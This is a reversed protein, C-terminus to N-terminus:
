FQRFYRESERAPKHPVFYSKAAPDFRRHLPDRGILRFLLGIPTLLGFFIIALLVYSLVLGIPFSILTLVVYLPLNARPAALSFLGSLAGLAWFVAVVAGTAGGFDIGFLGGRWLTLGGLLGFAVLAILGFQRLQKADPRLNIDIMAM